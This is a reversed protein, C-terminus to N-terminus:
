RRLRQRLALAFLGIIVPGFISQIVKLVMSLWTTHELYTPRIFTMVQLSYLAIHHLDSVKLPIGDRSIGFLLYGFTCAILLVAAWFLPRLYCEGYGSLWCYLHLFYRHIRPTDPNKRRMEKEGYHFDGAREYDRNEEHNKKLDRYIREIHEWDPKQNNISEGDELPAIEDYIGIRSYGLKGPIEAWKVGTFEIKDVRTGQFTCHSLDADRFIVVYPPNIDVYQFYVKAKKFIHQPKKEEKGKRGFFISRGFFKTSSFYVYCNEFIAGWFNTGESFMAGSFDAGMTFKAGAFSALKAFIAMAFYAEKTFTSMSFDAGESFTTVGLYAESTFTARYFYAGKTFTAGGFNVENTFTVGSFNAGKTFTSMGFDTKGSFTAEFFNVENTFTIGFFDIKEPFVFYSFNDGRTRRHEKFKKAFAKKDKNPDKSHLICLGAEPDADAYLGCIDYHKCRKKTAKRTSHPAKQTVM